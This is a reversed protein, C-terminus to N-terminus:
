RMMKIFEEASLGAAKMLNRLTGVAIEKHDPVSLSAIEGPKVLIIHSGNQRAKEWGFAEFIKM